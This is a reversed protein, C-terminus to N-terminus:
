YEHLEESGGGTHERGVGGGVKRLISPLLQCHSTTAKFILRSLFSFLVPHHSTASREVVGEWVHPLPGFSVM